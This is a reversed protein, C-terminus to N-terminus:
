EKTFVLTLAGGRKPLTFVKEMDFEYGQPVRIVHIEYPYSAATFSVAGGEGIPKPLCTSEDCITIIAGSVPAGHQDVCYIEYESELLMHPASYDEATYIDFLNDFGEASSQAGTEWYCLVGNKDILATTPYAYVGFADCLLDADMAMHFTLGNRAKYANIDADADFPTLALIAVDGSAREYAEQMFPFEYECWQCDVYWFNLMVADYEALLGSLTVQEGESTIVSFDEVVDGLDYVIEYQAESLAPALAFVCLVLALTFVCFTRLRM